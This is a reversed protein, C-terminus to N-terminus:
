SSGAGEDAAGCRGLRPQARLQDTMPALDDPELHDIGKGVASLAVLIVSGLDARGNLMSHAGRPLRQKGKARKARLRRCRRAMSGQAGLKHAPM